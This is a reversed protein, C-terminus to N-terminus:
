LLMPVRPASPNRPPPAIATELLAIMSTSEYARRALKSEVDQQWAAFEGIFNNLVDAINNVSDQLQMM